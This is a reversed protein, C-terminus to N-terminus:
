LHVLYVSYFVLGSALATLIHWLGHGWRPLPFSRARDMNWFIYAVGFCVFSGVLWSWYQWEGSLWMQIIVLLYTGGLFIGIIFEMRRHYRPSLLYALGGAFLFMLGPILWSPVSLLESAAYVALASFVTYIATVDMMGAWKTSTAHYLTSGVCLYAMTFAFVYSVATNLFVGPFLGVALYTLNTYTNVPQQPVAFLGARCNHLESEHWNGLCPVYADRIIAPKLYKFLAAFIFTAFIVAGATVSIALLM